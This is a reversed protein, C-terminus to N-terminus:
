DNINITQKIMHTILLTYISVVQLGKLSSYRPGRTVGRECKYVGTFAITNWVHMIPGQLAMVSGRPILM